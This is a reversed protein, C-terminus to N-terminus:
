RNCKTGTSVVWCVGTRLRWQMLHVSRNSSSLINLISWTVDYCTAHSCHRERTVNNWLWQVRLFSMIKGDVLRDNRNEGYISARPGRRTIIPERMRPLTEPLTINRAEIPTRTPRIPRCLFGFENNNIVWWYTSLRCSHKHESWLPESLNSTPRARLRNTQNNIVANRLQKRDASHRLYLNKM